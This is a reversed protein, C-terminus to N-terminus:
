NATKAEEKEAKYEKLKAAEAKLTECEGELRAAEDELAKVEELDFESKAVKGREVALAQKAEEVKKEAEKAADDATKFAEKKNNFNKRAGGRGKKGTLKEQEQAVLQEAQNKADQADLLKRRAVEIRDDAFVAQEFREFGEIATETQQIVYKTHNSVINEFKSMEGRMKETVGGVAGLIQMRQSHKILFENHMEPVSLGSGSRYRSVKQLRDVLANHQKTYRDMIEAYKKRAASKAPLEKVRARM